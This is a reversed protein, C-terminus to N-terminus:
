KGKGLQVRTMTEMYTTSVAVVRTGHNLPKGLDRRVLVRGRPHAHTQSMLQPISPLMAITVGMYGRTDQSSMLALFANRAPPSLASLHNRAPIHASTAHRNSHNSLCVSAASRRVQHELRSFARACLPYPCKYPRAIVKENMPPVPQNDDVMTFNYCAHTVLFSSKLMTASM